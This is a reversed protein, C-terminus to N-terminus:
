NTERKQSLNGQKFELNMENMRIEMEEPMNEDINSQGKKTNVEPLLLKHTKLTGTHQM